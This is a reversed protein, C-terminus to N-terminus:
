TAAPPPRAALSGARARKSAATPSCTPAAPPPRAPSRHPRLPRRPTTTAPPQDTVTLFAASPVGWVGNADQAEMFILHKGLALGSTAVTAQITEAVEDFAGDTAALAYTRQGGVVAPRHHLAGGQDGPEARQQRRLSQRRGARHADGGAGARRSGRGTDRQHNGPRGAGPLTAAGGQLRLAARAPQQRRHQERLLSCSQFFATGLEITYAPIGLAGYFWDDMDGSTAYLSTNGVGVTYGNYYAFKRGLTALQTANPAPAASWGWPHLVLDGYSHLTIMVGETDAPAADSDAPGRRDVFIASGYAEIAQAEPESAAAPGRYILNCPDNSAGTVGWKFSHNRNLDVGWGPTAVATSITPARVGPM